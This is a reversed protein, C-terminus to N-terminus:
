ECAGNENAIAMNIGRKEAPLGISVPHQQDTEAGILRSERSRSFISGRASPAEIGTPGERGKGRYRPAKDFGVKGVLRSSAKSRDRIKLRGSQSSPWGVQVVGMRGNVTKAM